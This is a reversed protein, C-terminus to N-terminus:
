FGPGDDFSFPILDNKLPLRHKDPDEHDYPKTPMNIFVADEIGINQVAHYVGQPIVFLVRNRESFTFINLLKYTSSDKRDDFFAWRLTGKSIFIRDDQKKHVVWGRISGPRAVVQYVYVLPETHVGWSSRYMEILEGRHDELPPTKHIVLDNIRKTTLEGKPTVTQKDKVPNIISSLKNNM